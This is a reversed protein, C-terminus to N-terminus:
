FVPDFYRLQGYPTIGLNGAHLDLRMTTCKWIMEEILKNLWNPTLHVRTSLVSKLRSLMKPDIRKEIETAKAKIQKRVEDVKAPDAMDSRWSEFPSNESATEAALYDRIPMLFQHLFDKTVLNTMPTMKEMIYYYYQLGAVEHFEGADYIMAERSAAQPNHWLNHMAEVASHYATRSHFIKLVRNPGISYAVGDVGAGLTVPETQFQTSLRNLIDSNEEIFAKTFPGVGRIVFPRRQFVQLLFGFRGLESTGQNKDVSQERTDNTYMKMNPIDGNGPLVAMAKWVSYSDWDLSKISICRMLHKKNPMTFFYQDYTSGVFEHGKINRLLTENTHIWTTVESAIPRFSDLFKALEPSLFENRLVYYDTRSDAWKQLSIYSRLDYLTALALLNDYNTPPM